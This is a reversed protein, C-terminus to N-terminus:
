QVSKWDISYIFDISFLLKPGASCCITANKIIEARLIKGQLEIPQEVEQLSVYEESVFEHNDNSSGNESTM